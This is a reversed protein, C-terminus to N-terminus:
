DGETPTSGDIGGSPGPPGGTFEANPTVFCDGCLFKREKASRPDLSSPGCNMECRKTAPDFSALAIPDARPWVIPQAAPTAPKRKV